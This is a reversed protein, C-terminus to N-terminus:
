LNRGDRHHCSEELNLSESRMVNIVFHFDSRLRLRVFGGRGHVMFMGSLIYVSSSLNVLEPSVSDPTSGYGNRTGSRM